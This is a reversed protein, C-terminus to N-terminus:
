LHSNGSLFYLTNKQIQGSKPLKFACRMIRDNEACGMFSDNPAIEAHQMQERCQRMTQTELNLFFNLFFFENKLEEKERKKKDGCILGGCLWSKEVVINALGATDLFTKPLMAVTQLLRALEDM